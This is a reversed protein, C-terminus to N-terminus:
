QIGYNILNCISPVVDFCGANRRLPDAKVPPASCTSTKHGVYSNQRNILIRFRHLSFTFILMISTDKYIETLVSYM